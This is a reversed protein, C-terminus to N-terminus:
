LLNKLFSKDKAVVSNTLIPIILRSIVNVVM